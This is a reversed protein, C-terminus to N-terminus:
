IGQERLVKGGIKGLVEDGKALFGEEDQRKGGEEAAHFLRKPADDFVHCVCPNGATM